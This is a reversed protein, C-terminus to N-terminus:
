KFFRWYLGKELNQHVLDPNESAKTKINRGGDYVLM